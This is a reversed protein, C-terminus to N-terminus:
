VACRQWNSEQQVIARVLGLPVGYHRAYASVYYEAEERERASSSQAECCCSLVAILCVSTLFCNM